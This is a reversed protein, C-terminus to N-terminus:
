PVTACRLSFPGFGHRMWAPLIVKQRGGVGELTVCGRERLIAAIGSVDLGGRRVAGRSRGYRWTALPKVANKGVIYQQGVPIVEAAL